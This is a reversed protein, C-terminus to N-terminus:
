RTRTAHKEVRFSFHAVPVLGIFQRQACMIMPCAINTQEPGRTPQPCGGCTPRIVEEVRGQFKGVCWKKGSDPKLTVHVMQGAQASTVSASASGDCGGKASPGSASITYESATSGSGVTRPAKFRVGFSSKKTGFRPSVNARPTSQALAPVASAAVAAVVALVLWARRSM